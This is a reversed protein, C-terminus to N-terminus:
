FLDQWDETEVAEETEVTPGPLVAEETEATPGPLVAKCEIKQKKALDRKFRCLRDSVYAVHMTKFQELEEETPPNGWITSCALREKLQDITAAKAQELSVTRFALKIEPSQEHERTKRKGLTRRKATPDHFHKYTNDPILNDRYKRAATQARFPSSPGCVRFNMSLSRITSFKKEGESDINHFILKDKKMTVSTNTPLPLCAVIGGAGNFVSYISSAAYIWKKHRVPKIEMGDWKAGNLATLFKDAEIEASSAPRVVMANTVTSVGTPDFPLSTVTAMQFHFHSFPIQHLISFFTPTKSRRFHSFTKKVGEHVAPTSPSSPLDVSAVLFVSTGFFPGILSSRKWRSYLGRDVDHPKNKERLRHGSLFRLSRFM